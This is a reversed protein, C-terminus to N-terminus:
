SVRSKTAVTRASPTVGCTACFAVFRRLAMSARVVRCGTVIQGLARRLGDRPSRNALLMARSRLRAVAAARPDPPHKDEAQAVIQECESDSTPAPM